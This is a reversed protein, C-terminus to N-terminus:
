RPNMQFCQSNHCVKNRIVGHWQTLYPWLIYWINLYIDYLHHTNYCCGCVNPTLNRSQWTHTTNVVSMKTCVWSRPQCWLLAPDFNHSFSLTLGPSIIITVLEIDNTLLYSPSIIMTSKYFHLLLWTMIDYIHDYSTLCIDYTPDM